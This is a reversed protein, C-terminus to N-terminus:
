RRRYLRGGGDDRFGGRKRAAMGRLEFAKEIHERDRRWCNVGSAQQSAYSAFWRVQDADLRALAGAAAAAGFPRPLATHQQPRRQLIGEVSLAMTGSQRIDYGLVIARILEAGSAGNREAMALAAPVVACGLHSRSVRHSNDTEIRM